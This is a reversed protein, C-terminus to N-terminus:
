HLVRPDPHLVVFDDTAASGYLATVFVSYTNFASRPVRALSDPVFAALRGCVYGGNGM